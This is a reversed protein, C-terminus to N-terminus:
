ASNLGYKRMRNHVTARSVGLLRAAASKNGSAQQLARQLAAREGLVPAQQGAASGQAAQTIHPPLHDPGMVDGEMVVFAYELASKLERVNGPWRYARMAALTAPPLSPATRGCRRALLTAFHQALLDIDAGRERLPPLRIPITNIRYLLDERFTGEAVLADVDRNTASIVRVDTSIPRHDGVREVTKTELVRLLKVQTPLPVDGIEDLFISGTHAAEFRGQRERVAGTFAGRAHGFLESELLSENLAACNLQIFPADARASLMHIAAAALEKGTGSEGLLLVPAESAAAKEILRFTQRMVQSGGVMSCFLSQGTTTCTTTVEAANPLQACRLESLDTLVEVGLRRGTADTFTRASKLVPVYSGDKRAVVCRNRTGEADMGPMCFLGCWAEEGGMSRAKECIDCDLEDCRRGELESRAYGLMRCLEDNVRLITGADDVVFLGNGMAEPLQRLIDDTNM